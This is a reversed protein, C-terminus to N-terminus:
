TVAEADAKALRRVMAYATYIAASGFLAAGMVLGLLGGEPGGWQTGLVVFPITGVTARGWNFATSLFAFGLNNFVANAVFLCGLFLWQVAGIKCFFDVIAATQGTAAFTDIILPASLWLLGWMLLAYSIALTFCDTLTRRIRDYRRAGWNQAVIPGVAGSLAFMIGFAVPALRDIIAFAAIVPEGYQSFVRLVWSTAVPAALNTAIAPLAVVAMPRLDQRVHAWNPRAILNHVHVAGWLGVATFVLRSIATAVAAGDVGMNLGFILLPDLAATIAGGWLTVYMSRRADGVARLSGSLAMGLSMLANAPLTIALFNSAVELSKGSAGLLGVLERRLPLAVLTLAISIIFIHTLGSACYRRARERNGAGIDRAMLASVAISLGIGISIMFFMIQTAYGVGATLHPDGLWSIYLLSLLDVIFVAVLGVSGTATMVAVHRMIPGETFVARRAAATASPANTKDAPAQDSPSRQLPPQNMPECLNAALMVGRAPFALKVERDLTASWPGRADGGWVRAFMPKLEEM